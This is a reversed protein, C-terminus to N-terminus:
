KPEVVSMTSRNPQAWRRFMEQVDEAHITDFLGAFDLYHEGAFVSAIEQRAYLDPVDLMRLRMGYLANKMRRFLKPEIGEQALRTTERELEERVAAPDRSEGGLIACAGDPILSYDVDFDRGLLRKEYLKAYLPSTDGCLIRVALDGILSRRLRSEGAPVPEDKFGVMCQPLSVQMKRTVVPQHVEARREGYHRQGIEPADKPSIEEAM